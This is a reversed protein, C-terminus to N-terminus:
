KILKTLENFQNEAKLFESEKLEFNGYWVFDYLYTSSAFKKKLIESKIEKIYDENTKQQQLDIIESNSLKQLILLYYYRVALRYNKQTIANNLLTPLDESKILEEDETILVTSTNTKGSVIANANVKLFFKILLFLILGVIIYPILRVIFSMIGTAAKNGFIWRLFNLFVRYLWEFAQQLLSPEKKEIEYNFDKDSRYEELNDVDIKKLEIYERDIKVKLSDQQANSYLTFFVLIYFLIQKM